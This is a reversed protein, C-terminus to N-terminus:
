RPLGERVAYGPTPAVTVGHDVRATPGRSASTAIWDFVGIALPVILLWIPLVAGWDHDTM